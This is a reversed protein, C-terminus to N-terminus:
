DMRIPLLIPKPLVPEHNDFWEERCGLQYLEEAAREEPTKAFHNWIIHEVKGVKM